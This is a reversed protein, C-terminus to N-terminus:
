TGIPDRESEAWTEHDPAVIDSAELVTGKMFGLPSPASGDVPVLKAVPKGRKTIVVEAHRINVEDMVELCRAKFEAAKM